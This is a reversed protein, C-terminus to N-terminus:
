SEIEEGEYKDVDEECGEEIVVVIVGIEIEVKTEGYDCCGKKM